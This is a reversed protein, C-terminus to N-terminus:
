RVLLSSPPWFDRPGSAWNQEHREMAASGLDAVRAGGNGDGMLREDATKQLVSLDGTLLRRKSNMIMGDGGSGWEEGGRENRINGFILIGDPLKFFLATSHESYNPPTKSGTMCGFISVIGNVAIGPGFTLTQRANGPMVLDGTWEPWSDLIAAAYRL